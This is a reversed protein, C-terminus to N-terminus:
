PFVRLSLFSEEIIKFSYQYAVVGILLAFLISAGALVLAFKYVKEVKRKPLFVKYFQQREKSSNHGKM